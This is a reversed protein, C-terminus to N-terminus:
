PAHSADRLIQGLCWQTYRGGLLQGILHTFWGTPLDYKIWVRLQVAQMLQALEVGMSYRGIVLLRPEAATAWTKRLPPAYDIVEETVCLPIGLVRGQLRIVSGLAQGRLSDVEVRMRAGAMMWSPKEMHGALRKHDDIAAFVEDVTRGPIRATAVRAYQYDM